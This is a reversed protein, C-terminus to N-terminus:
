DQVQGLAALAHEALEYRERLSPVARSLVGAVVDQRVHDDGPAIGVGGHVMGMVVGIVEDDRRLAWSPGSSRTLTWGMREAMLVMPVPLLRRPDTEHPPETAATLLSAVLTRKPHDILHQGPQPDGDPALDARILIYRDSLWVTGAEDTLRLLTASLVPGDDDLEEGNSYEAYEDTVTPAFDSWNLREPRTPTDTM